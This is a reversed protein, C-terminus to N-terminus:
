VAKGRTVEQDVDVDKHHNDETDEIEEAEIM